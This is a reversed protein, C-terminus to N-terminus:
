GRYGARPKQCSGTLNLTAGTDSDGTQLVPVPFTTHGLRVRYEAAGSRGVQGIDCFMQQISLACVGSLRRELSANFKDNSLAFSM